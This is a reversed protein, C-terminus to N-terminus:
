QKLQTETVFRPNASARCALIAGTNLDLQRVAVSAAQMAYFILTDTGSGSEYRARKGHALVVALIGKVTVPESFTVAITSIGDLSAARVMTVEPPMASEPDWKGGFTWAPTIDEPKPSGPATALNDKFWEYDGGDRHCNYYHHRDDGFRLEQDGKTRALPSDRLNPDFTCNLFYFHADYHHRGLIWNKAGGLRCNKLVFKKDADNVGQHWLAASDKLEYLQSDKMYAWGRPCVFDVCGTVKLNAYYYMGSAKYKWSAITDAGKSLVDCNQLVLRDGRGFVAFAHPGIEEVTNHITMDQIVIDDAYYSLTGRGFTKDNADPSFAPLAFEIRTKQRSQGVLTVCNADIRVHENYIGNKIYIIVRERNGKPISKLAENISKFQGTGDQAVSIDPLPVFQTRPAPQSPSACGSVALAIVLISILKKM